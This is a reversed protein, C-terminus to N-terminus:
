ETAISRFEAVVPVATPDTSVLVIKVAYEIFDTYSVSGVSYTIKRNGSTSDTNADAPLYTYEIYQDSNTSFTNSAPTSQSMKIWKKSDFKDSDSNSRVKYYVYVDSNAPKNVSLYVKLYSASSALTVKRTIYKAKANGGSTQTESTDTITANASHSAATTSNVGRSVILNQTGGGWM